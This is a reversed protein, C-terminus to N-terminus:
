DSQIRILSVCPSRDGYASRPAADDASSLRSFGTLHSSNDLEVHFCSRFFRYCHLNPLEFLSAPDLCCPKPMSSCKSPLKSITSTRGHTTTNVITPRISAVSRRVHITSGVGITTKCTNASRTSSCTGPTTRPSCVRVDMCCTGAFHRNGDMPQHISCVSCKPMDMCVPLVMSEM